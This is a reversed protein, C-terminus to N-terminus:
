RAQPVLIKFKEKFNDQITRYIFYCPSFWSAWFFAMECEAVLDTKFAGRHRWFHQLARRLDSGLWFRLMLLLKQYGKTNISRLHYACLGCSKSLTVLYDRELRQQPIQHYAHMAPNYWIEWGQKHMHLMLEFDEGGVMSKGIRGKFVPNKPLSERWAKKNVVLAATTPVILKDAEYLNPEKGRETIALFAQIRSFDQPPEVEFDGHIQSSFAGIQPHEQIFQYAAAVWNDAPIVDDDLFGIWESNCEAIARKRAFASGQKTELQYKLPNKTDWDQQYKQVVQSTSDKSNNDVVIIEWVFSETNIQSRLKELLKPLRKAGNYTPIAVTFNVRNM